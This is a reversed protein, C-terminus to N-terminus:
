TLFRASCWVEVLHYRKAEDLLDRCEMNSRVLENSDVNRVLYDADLLPLRVHRLLTPLLPAREAKDHAIWRVVAEYIEEEGRVNLDDSSLMEAVRDCSHALFEDSKAVDSFRNRAFEDVADALGACGTAEAFNRIGLCNSPDLQDKLFDSCLTQVAELQLLAAAALLDQVNDVSVDLRGTYVFDILRELITPDMDRMTVISQGAEAMDSTFMAFFYPSSAALVARHSPIDTAGVRLIVDCLRREARLANVRALLKISHRSPSVEFTQSSPAPERSRSREM